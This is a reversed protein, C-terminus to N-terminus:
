ENPRASFCSPCTECRQRLSDDKDYVFEVSNGITRDINANKFHFIHLISSTHFKASLFNNKRVKLYLDGFFFTNCVISTNIPFQFENSFMILYGLYNEASASTLYLLINLISIKFIRTIKM